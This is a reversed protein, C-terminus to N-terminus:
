EEVVGGPQDFYKDALAKIREHSRRSRAGLQGAPAKALVAAKLQKALNAAFTEDLDGDAKIKEEMAMYGAGVVHRLPLDGGPVNGALFEDRAEIQRAFDEETFSVLEQISHKKGQNDELAMLPTSLITSIVVDFDDAYSAFQAPPSPYVHQWQTVLPEIYAQIKGGPAVTRIFAANLLTRLYHPPHVNASKVSLVSTSPLTLFTALFSAFSPGGMLIGLFDALIERVWFAWAHAGASQVATGLAVKLQSSLGNLDFDIDHAVEHHLSLLEWPNVLHNWPLAIVPLPLDKKTEDVNLLPAHRPNTVPSYSAQLYTLPYDRGELQNEIGLRRTANRFLTYCDHAILDAVLLESAFVPDYRQELKNRFFSWINDGTQLKKELLAAQGLVSAVDPPIKSALTGLTTAESSLRKIYLDMFESIVDLQSNNKELPKGVETDQVWQELERPMSEARRRLSAVRSELLM